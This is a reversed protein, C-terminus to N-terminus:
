ATRWCRVGKVCGETLTRVSYKRGQRREASAAASSLTNRTVGPLFFSDGIEMDDWPYKQVAAGHSPIPKGKDIKIM